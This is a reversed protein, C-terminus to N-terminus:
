QQTFIERAVEACKKGLIGIRDEGMRFAPGGIGLSAIVTGQSDFVPAAVGNVGYHFEEFETAYGRERTIALEARYAVADTISKTTRAPLGELRMIEDVRYDPLWALIAKGMANLTAPFRWGIQPSVRIQIPPEKSDVIVVKTGQLVALCATEGGFEMLSQLFPKAIRRIDLNRLAASGYEALAIGLRYRKSSEDRQVVGYHSLAVLIKHVTSKHLGLARALEVTTYEAGDRKLMDLIAFAKEIAPVTGVAGKVKEYSGIV